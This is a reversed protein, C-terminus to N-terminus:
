DAVKRGIIPWKRGLVWLEFKFFFTNKAIKSFIKPSKKEFFHKPRFNVLFSHFHNKVNEKPGLSSRSRIKSWKRCVLIKIKEFVNQWNLRCKDWIDNLSLLLSITNKNKNLSKHFSYVIYLHSWIHRMDLTCRFIFAATFQKNKWHLTKSEM